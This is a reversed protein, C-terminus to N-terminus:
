SRTFKKKLPNLDVRLIGPGLDVFSSHITQSDSNPNKRAIKEAPYKAPSLGVLGAFLGCFGGLGILSKHERAAVLLYIASFHKVKQETCINLIRNWVSKIRWFRIRWV